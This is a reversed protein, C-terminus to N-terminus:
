DRRDFVDNDQSADPTRGHGHAHGRAPPIRVVPLPALILRMREEHTMMRAPSPERMADAQEWTVGGEEYEDNPGFM